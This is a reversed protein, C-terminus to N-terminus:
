KTSSLWMCQYPALKLNSQSDVIQESILDQLRYSLCYLRLENAEVQIMQESFNALVLVKHSGNHRVFAFLQPQDIQAVQFSNGTFAPTSQRLKILHKFQSFVRGEISSQQHRLQMQQWDFAPRNVWRSDDAKSSDYQYNYDNLKAIEDGLYILPIGNAALLVSHLLIIRAIALAQLNSDQHDLAQELGCLSALTGAIRADGTSPNEQFPVGTAFSGHFRGTYFRNLFQRHDFGNIGQAAADGDAFGWGIDDHCRLYNIWTCDPNIEMRQAAGQRLLKTERTALAEWMLSMFNPNYSLQCENPSIYKVVQDPHVIAESKFLFSPAALRVIANFAQILIHAKDLNECNTGKEKWSFALADLRAVECGQNALYLLEGAMARYVEPNQYNLDWQFSNFTTWVWSDTAQQYSFSGQRKSPFIERLQQDLQDPESRDPFFFYYDQYRQEGALAAQAWRHNDATHNFIFDLVLSIGAERLADALQRLQESDGLDSRVSRYDSVAYGGDSDGEPVDFLPMLHLYNIGLEKFYPIKKQLGALDDAFLDVYCMGGVVQNENFWHGHPLDSQSRKHDLQKLAVPRQQWSEAALSLSAELHYLFDYRQGYLQMLLDFLRQYDPGQLRQEFAAWAPNQAFQQQLKPLIRDLSLKAHYVSDFPHHNLSNNM